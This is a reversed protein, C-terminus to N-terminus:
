QKAWARADVNLDVLTIAGGNPDLLGTSQSVSSAYIIDFDIKFRPIVIQTEPTGSITATRKTSSIYVYAATFSEGDNTYTISKGDFLTQRLRPPKAVYIDTSGETAGDLTRCRLIDARIEKLRYQSIKSGSSGFSTLELSAGRFAQTVRIEPSDVIESARCKRLLKNLWVAWRESSRIEEPWNM